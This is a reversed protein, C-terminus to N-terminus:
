AASGAIIKHWRAALQEFRVTRSAFALEIRRGESLNAPLGLQELCPRIVDHLESPARFELLVQNEHSLEGDILEMLASIARTTSQNQLFPQLIDAIAAELEHRMSNLGLDIHSKLQDALESGLEERLRQERHVQSHRENALAEEAAGLADELEQERNRECNELQDGPDVFSGAIEMAEDEPPFTFQPESERDSLWRSLPIM